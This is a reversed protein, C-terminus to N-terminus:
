CLNCVARKADRKESNANKLDTDVVQLYDRFAATNVVEQCLYFLLKVKTNMDLNWYEEEALLKQWEHKEDHLIM